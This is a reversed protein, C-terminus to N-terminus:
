KVPKVNRKLQTKETKIEGKGEVCICGILLLVSDKKLYNSLCFFCIIFIIHYYVLEQYVPIAISLHWSLLVYVLV